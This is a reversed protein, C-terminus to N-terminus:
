MGPPKVEDKDPAVRVYWEWATWTEAEGGTFHAYPQLRATRVLEQLKMGLERSREDDNDGLGPIGDLQLQAVVTRTKVAKSPKTAGLTILAAVVAAEIEYDNVVAPVKAM